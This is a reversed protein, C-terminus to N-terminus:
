FYYSLLRFILSKLLLLQARFIDFANIDWEDDDDELESQILKNEAELTDFM